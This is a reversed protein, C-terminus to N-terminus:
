QGNLSVQHETIIDLSICGQFACAAIEQIGESFVVETLEICDRFACSDMIRVTSPFTISALSSCGEFAFPGIKQLGENL